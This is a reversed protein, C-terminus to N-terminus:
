DKRDSSKKLKQLDVQREVRLNQDQAHHSSRDERGQQKDETTSTLTDLDVINPLSRFREIIKDVEEDSQPFETSRLLEVLQLSSTLLSNKPDYGDVFTNTKKDKFAEVDNQALLLRYDCTIEEGRRIDRKAFLIGCHYLVNAQHSHNIYDEYMRREDFMFFKHVWRVGTKAYVDDNEHQAKQYTRESTIDAELSMIGVIAARTIDEDAFLGWKHIPSKEIKTQYFLMNVAM